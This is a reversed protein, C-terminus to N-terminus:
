INTIQEVVRTMEIDDYRQDVPLVLLQETLRGEFADPSLWGLVNPWYQAIFIKNAILKKRLCIGDDTLFPYVMPVSNKPLTSQFKNIKGLEKDLYLFNEIRKKKIEEYDIGRLIRETLRSMEKIPQNDLLGENEKFLNYAEETGEDIRQLLHQVRSYSKDREFEMDLLRTTYLYAGDPVGFFKRASYFTDIGELPSAYFAQANDVILQDHYLKALREVCSQKLGYYNTYLFADMAELEPLEVPELSENVHYFDYRVNLERLPQLMVECTYYPIYVRKYGRALLVYKFCNRATNLRLAEKHYHEGDNLELEFYGGIENM